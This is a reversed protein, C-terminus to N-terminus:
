RNLKLDLGNLLNGHCMDASMGALHSVKNWNFEIPILFLCALLQFTVHPDSEESDLPTIGCLDSREEFVLLWNAYTELCSQLRCPWITSYGLLALFEEKIVCFLFSREFYNHLGLSCLTDMTHMRPGEICVNNRYKERRYVEVSFILMMELLCEVRDKCFCAESFM